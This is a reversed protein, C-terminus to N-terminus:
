AEEEDEFDNLHGIGYKLDYRDIEEVYSAHNIFSTEYFINNELENKHCYFSCNKCDLCKLANCSSVGNVEKYAFCDRKVSEM